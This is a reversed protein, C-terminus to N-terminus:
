MPLECLCYAKTPRNPDPLRDLTTYPWRIHNPNTDSPVRLSLLLLVTKELINGVVIWSISVQVQLDKGLDWETENQVSLPLLTPSPGIGIDRKKSRQVGPRRRGVCVADPQVWAITSLARCLVRTVLPWAPRRGVPVSTSQQTSVSGVATM